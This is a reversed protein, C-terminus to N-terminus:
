ILSQNVDTYYGAIQINKKIRMGEEGRVGLFSGKKHLLEPQDKQKSTSPIPIIEEAPSQFKQVPVRQRKLPTRPEVEAPAVAAKRKRQVLVLKM